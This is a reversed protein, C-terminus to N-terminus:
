EPEESFEQEASKRMFWIGVALGIVFMVAGALIHTINEADGVSTIILTVLSGVTLGFILFSTSRHHHELAYHVIKSFGLLGVVAGAAMSVLFAGDLNSITDTFLTFLGFVILITSHSIGPVMASIAVVIGVVFMVVMGAADHGLIVDDSGGTFYMILMSGMIVFGIALAAWNARTWASERPKTMHYVAPIQGAILGAFLFQCETPYKDMAGSLIKASVLTGILIGILLFLIFWFDKRLYVRLRAVDRVLREYIGFCVCIVAGSIGPLMSAIGVVIGVLIEKVAKARSEMHPNVIKLTYIFPPLPNLLLTSM